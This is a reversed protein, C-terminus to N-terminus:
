FEQNPNPIEKDLIERKLYKAKARITAGKEPSRDIAAEKRKQDLWIELRQKERQQKEYADNVQQDRKGKELLYLDYTSTHSTVTKMVASLELVKTTKAAQILSIDSSAILIGGRFKQIFTTLSSAVDPNIASSGTDILIFTPRTHFIQALPNEGGTLSEPSLYHIREAEIKISGEDIEVEDALVHLFATVLDPNTGVVAIRENPRIVLNVKEFLPEGLVDVRANKLSIM